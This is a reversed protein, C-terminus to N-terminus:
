HSISEGSCAAGTLIGMDLAPPGEGAAIRGLNPRPPTLPGIRDWPKGRPRHIPDCDEVEISVLFVLVANRRSAPQAYVRVGCGIADLRGAAPHVKIELVDVPQAVTVPM